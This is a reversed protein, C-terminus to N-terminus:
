FLSEGSAAPVGIIDSALNGAVYCAINTDPADLNGQALVKLGNVGPLGLPVPGAIVEVATGAIVGIEVNTGASAEACTTGTMTPDAWTQATYGYYVNGAPAFGLLDFGKGANAPLITWALKKNGNAPLWATPMLAAGGYTNYKGFFAEENTKIAGLSRTAETTKSKLQYKLFQPIAVSALIGIIVVVIMLEILTFGDKKMLKNM